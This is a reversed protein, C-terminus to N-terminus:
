VGFELVLGEAPARALVFRLLGFRDPLVMADAMHAIIYDVVERKAHLRLDV